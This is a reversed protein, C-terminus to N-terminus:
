LTSIMNMNTNIVHTNQYLESWCLKDNWQPSLGFQTVSYTNHSTVNKFVTWKSHSRSRGGQRPQCGKQEARGQTNVVQIREDLCRVAEGYRFKVSNCHRNTNTVDDRKTFGGSASSTHVLRRILMSRTFTLKSNSGIWSNSCGSSFGSRMWRGDKALISKMLDLNSNSDEESQDFVISKTDWSTM